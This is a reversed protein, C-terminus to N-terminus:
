FLYGQAVWYHWDAIAEQTRKNVDVAELQDLPVGFTRGSWEILVFMESECNEEGAMGIALVQEGIELPSIRREKICHAKFPFGLKEDLYYYWGLSKEVSDYADVVVEMMIRYERDEDRDIKSM